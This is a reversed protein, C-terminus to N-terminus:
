TEPKLVFAKGVIRTRKAKATKLLSIHPAAEQNKEIGAKEFVNSM